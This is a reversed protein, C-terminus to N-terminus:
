TFEADRGNLTLLDEEFQSILRRASKKELDSSFTSEDEDVQTQTDILQQQLEGVTSLLEFIENGSAFKSQVLDLSLLSM